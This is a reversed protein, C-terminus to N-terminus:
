GHLKDVIENISLDIYQSYPTNMLTQASESSIDPELTKFTSALESELTKVSDKFQLVSTLHTTQELNIQQALENLSMDLVSLTESNNPNTHLDRLLSAIKLFANLIEYLNKTSVYLHDLHLKSSKIFKVFDSYWMSVAGIVASLYSHVVKLDEIALKFVTGVYHTFQAQSKLGGLIFRKIYPEFPYTHLHEPTQLKM